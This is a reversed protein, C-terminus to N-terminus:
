LKIIGQRLIKFAGNNEVFIVTSEIGKACFGYDKFVYDVYSGISKKAEEFTRSSQENSINASTTALVHGDIVSCLKQFFINDPIRIGVTTKGSTIYTPTIDSKETVITLAGPFYKEIYSKVYKNEKIYPFLNKENNSMLILPKSRDRGKIEYIRDAGKKSEPLCGLGWVTDTVFSIVGGDKLIKNLKDTFSKEELINKLENLYNM